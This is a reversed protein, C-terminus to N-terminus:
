LPLLYIHDLPPPPRPACACPARDSPVYNQRKYYAFTKARTTKKKLNNGLM